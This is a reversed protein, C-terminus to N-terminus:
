RGIARLGATCLEAIADEAALQAADISAADGATSYVIWSAAARAFTAASALRRGSADYLTREILTRTHGDDRADGRVITEAWGACPVREAQPAATRGLARDIAALLADQAAICSAHTKRGGSATHAM